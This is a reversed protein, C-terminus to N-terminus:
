GVALRWCCSCLCMEVLWFYCCCFTFKAFCCFFCRVVFLEPCGLRDDRTATSVHLVVMYCGNLSLIVGKPSLDLDTVTKNVSNVYRYIYLLVLYNKIYVYVPTLFQHHQNEQIIIHKPVQM